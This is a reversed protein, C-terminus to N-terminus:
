HSERILEQHKWTSLCDILTPEVSFDIGLAGENIIIGCASNPSHNLCPPHGGRCSFETALARRSVFPALSSKPGGPERTGRQIADINSRKRQHGHHTPLQYPPQPPGPRDTPATRREAVLNRRASQRVPPRPVENDETVELLGRQM